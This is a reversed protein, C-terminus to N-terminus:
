RRRIMRKRGRTLMAPLGTVVSGLAWIVLIVVFSFGGSAPTGANALMRYMVWAMLLNWAWFVLLFLWGFLGRRRTEIWQEQM